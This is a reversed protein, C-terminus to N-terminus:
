GFLETEPDIDADDSMEKVSPADSYEEQPADQLTHITETHLYMKSTGLDKSIFTKDFVSKKATIEIAASNGNEKRGATLEVAIDKGSLDIGLSAVYNVLATNIDEHELIIKM